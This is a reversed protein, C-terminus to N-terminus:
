LKLLFLDEARSCDTGDGLYHIPSAILPIFSLPVTGFVLM